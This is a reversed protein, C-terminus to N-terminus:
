SGDASRVINVRDINADYIVDRVKIMTGTKASPAAQVIVSASPSEARRREIASRLRNLDTLENGVRIHSQENIYIRIALSKEQDCGVCKPPPPELAIAQEQIFTSTVIFFILLIFVVDLMPTLDVRADRESELRREM